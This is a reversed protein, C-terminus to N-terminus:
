SLLGESICLYLTLIFKQVFPLFMYKLTLIKRNSNVCLSILCCSLIWLTFYEQISHIYISVGMVCVMDKFKLLRRSVFLTSKHDHVCVKPRILARSLRGLDKMFPSWVKVSM